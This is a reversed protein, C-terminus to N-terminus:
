NNKCDTFVFIHINAGGIISRGVGRYCVVVLLLKDASLKIEVAVTEGPLDLCGKVAIKNKVALM